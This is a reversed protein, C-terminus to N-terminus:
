KKAREGMSINLLAGVATVATCEVDIDAIFDGNKDVGDLLDGDSLTLRAHVAARGITALDPLATDKTGAPVPCKLLSTTMRAAAVDAGTLGRNTRALNVLHHPVRSHGPQQIDSTFM